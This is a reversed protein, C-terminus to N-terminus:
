WTPTRLLEPDIINMTIQMIIVYLNDLKFSHKGM